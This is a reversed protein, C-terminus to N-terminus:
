SLLYFVERPLPISSPCQFVEAVPHMCVHQCLLIGEFLPHLPQMCLEPHSQRQSCRSIDPLKMYIHFLNKSVICQKMAKFPIKNTTKMRESQSYLYNCWTFMTILVHWDEIVIHILKMDLVRACTLLFHMGRIGHSALKWFKVWSLWLFPKTKWDCKLFYIINMKKKEVSFLLASM